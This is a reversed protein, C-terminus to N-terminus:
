AEAFSRIRPTRSEHQRAHQEVQWELDHTQELLRVLTAAWTVARPPGVPARSRPAFVLAFM